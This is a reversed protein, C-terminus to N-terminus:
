CNEKTRCILLTPILPLMLYYPNLFQISQDFLFTIFFPLYYVMKSKSFYRKLYRFFLVLYLLFGVSGLCVWIQQLANHMYEKMGLVEAHCIAGAGIFIATPNALWREQYQSFLITRGGATQFNGEESRTEFGGTMTDLIDPFVVVVFLAMLLMLFLYKLRGSRDTIFIYLVFLLGLCMLYTRSVSFFGLFLTLAGIITLIVKNINIKKWYCVICSISSLAFYALTNANAALHGHQNSIKNEIAGLAGSRVAGSLITELNWQSLMVYAIISLCLLTGLIYSTICDHIEFRDNYSNMFYFLLASFSLFSTVAMFTASDSKYTLDSLLELLVLMLLPFLQYGNLRPGKLLLIIFAVLMTYGPIGCTLPFTFFLFPVAKRYPLLLMCIGILGVIAVDHVGIMLVDRVILLMTLLLYCWITRNNLLSFLSM